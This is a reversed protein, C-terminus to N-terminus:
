LVHSCCWACGPRRGAEGMSREAAEDEKSARGEAGSETWEEAGVVSAQRSRARGVGGVSPERRRGRLEKRIAERTAYGGGVPASDMSMNRLHVGARPASSARSHLSEPGIPAATSLPMDIRLEAPGVTRYHGGSIAIGSSGRRRPPSMSSRARTLIRRTPTDPGRPESTAEDAEGKAFDESTQKSLLGRSSDRTHRRAHPGAVSGPSALIPDADGNDGDDGSVRSASLAAAVGETASRTLRHRPPTSGSVSMQGSPIPTGSPAAGREQQTSKEPQSQQPAPTERAPPGESSGPQVPPMRSPTPEHEDEGEMLTAQSVPLLIGPHWLTTSHSTVDADGLCVSPSKVGFSSDVAIQTSDCFLPLLLTGHLLMIALFTSIDYKVYLAPRCCQFLPSLPAFLPSFFCAHLAPLSVLASLGDLGSADPGHALHPGEVDDWDRQVSPVSSVPLAGSLAPTMPQSDPGLARGDPALDVEAVGVMGPRGAEHPPRRSAATDDTHAHHGASSAATRLGGSSESQPIRPPAGAPRWVPRQGVSRASRPTPPASTGAASPARAAHHPPPSVASSSREPPPAQVPSAPPPAAPIAQKARRRREAKM